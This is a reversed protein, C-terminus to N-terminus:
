RVFAPMVETRVKAKRVYHDLISLTDLFGHDVDGIRNEDPVEVDEMHLAATDSSRMGLKGHIAERNVSFPESM